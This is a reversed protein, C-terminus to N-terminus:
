VSRDMRLNRIYKEPTISEDAWSGTAREMKLIMTEVDNKIKQRISMRIIESFPLRTSKSESNLFRFIEDDLYIQTRHM